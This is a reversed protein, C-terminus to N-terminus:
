ASKTESANRAFRVLGLATIVGCALLTMHFAIEIYIIRNMDLGVQMHLHDHIWWNGTLWCLTTLLMKNIWTAGLPLKRISPWGFLGLAVAFGFALAEIASLAIYGPLLAPPPAPIDSRMPWLQPGLFFAAIGIVLTVLPIKGLKRM